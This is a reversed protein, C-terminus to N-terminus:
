NKATEELFEVTSLLPNKKKGRVEARLTLDGSEPLLLGDRDAKMTLYNREGVRIVLGLTVDHSVGPELDVILEDPVALRLVKLQTLSDRAGPATFAKTMMNRFKSAPSIEAGSIYALMRHRATNFDRGLPTKSRWYDPVHDATRCFLAIGLDTIPVTSVRLDLAEAVEPDLSDLSVLEPLPQDPKPKWEPNLDVILRAAASSAAPAPSEEDPNLEAQRRLMADVVAEPIGAIKLEEVMEESLDYDGDSTEIRRILEEASVGQVFMRVVDEETMVDRDPPADAATVVGVVLILLLALLVNPRM